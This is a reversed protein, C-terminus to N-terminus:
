RGEGERGDEENQHAQVRDPEGATSPIGRAQFSSTSDLPPASVCLIAPFSLPLPLFFPPSLPCCDLLM